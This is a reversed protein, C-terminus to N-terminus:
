NNFWFLTNYMSLYLPYSFGFFTYKFYSNNFYVIILSAVFLVLQLLSIYIKSSPPFGKEDTLSM